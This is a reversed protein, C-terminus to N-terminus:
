QKLTVQKRETTREEHTQTATRSGTERVTVWFEEIGDYQNLRCMLDRVNTYVSALVRTLIGAECLRDHCPM